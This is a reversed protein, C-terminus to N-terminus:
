NFRVAGFGVPAAAGFLLVALLSLPIGRQAIQGCRLTACPHAGYAASLRTLRPKSASRGKGPMLSEGRAHRARARQRGFTPAAHDCRQWLLPRSKTRLPLLLFGDVRARRGWPILTAEDWDIPPPTEWLAAAAIPAAAFDENFQDVLRQLM